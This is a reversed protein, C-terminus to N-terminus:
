TPGGRKISDKGFKMNIQDAVRDLNRSRERRPDSFLTADDGARSLREASMGILRVPQFPWANFVAVAHEWLESTIDTPQPLTASRSITEFNGFRIKLSIGKTQLGHKRLRRAVQEVQEFLVRRIEDPEGVDVAFTQEHSISKAERDPTVPRDDIGRSLDHYRQAESGFHRQLRELPMDRLDAITRVSLRELKAATAKGVGWIRTVPLPLLVNDIEDRRIITLGDPKDMDSALKALYKNPAIGVSATLELESRIREKLRRGVEPPEGMSRETGTLDMFAEDISLPEVVPSFEDLITFVQRSVERYLHGRVPRIIANPCRRKAIAMPQASHCGFKRAEYSAAAVVGRSGDFGILVPAGRLSPDERQEVSAFFADMDLHMITRPNGPPMTM